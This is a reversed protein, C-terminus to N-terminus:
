GTPTCLPKYVYPSIRSKGHPSQLIEESLDGGCEHGGFVHGAISWKGAATDTLDYAVGDVIVLCTGQAEAADFEAQTICDGLGGSPTQVPTPTANTGGAGNETATCGFLLAVCAVAFVANWDMISVM